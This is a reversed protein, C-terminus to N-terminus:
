FCILFGITDKKLRDHIFSHDEEQFHSLILKTYQELQIHSYPFTPHGFYGIEFFPLWWSYWRSGNWVWTAPSIIQESWFQAHDKISKTCLCSKQVIRLCHMMSHNLLYVICKLKSKLRPVAIKTKRPHCQLILLRRLLEMTWLEKILHDLKKQFVM